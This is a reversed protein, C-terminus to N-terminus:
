TAHLVFPAIKGNTHTRVNIVHTQVSHRMAREDQGFVRSGVDDADVRGLRFTDRPHNADEGGSVHGAGEFGTQDVLVPRQHNGHAPARAKEAVHERHDDGLVAFDRPSGGLRNPDVVDRMTGDGICHGGDAVGFM